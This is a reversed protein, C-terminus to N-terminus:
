CSCLMRMLQPVRLSRRQLWTSNVWARRHRPVCAMCIPVRLPPYTEKIEVEDLLKQFKNGNLLARALGILAEEEKWGAKRARRFEKEAGASDGIDLNLQGLL